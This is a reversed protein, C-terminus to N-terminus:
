NIEVKVEEEKVCDKSTLVPTTKEIDVSLEMKRGFCNSRIRTHNIAAVIVGVISLGFGVMGLINETNM